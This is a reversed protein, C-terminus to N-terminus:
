RLIPLRQDVPQLPSAYSPVARETMTPSTGVMLTKGRAYRHELRPHEGYLRAHRSRLRGWRTRAASRGSACITTPPACRRLAAALSAPRLERQGRGRGPLGRVHAPDRRAQRRRRHVDLVQERAQGRDERDHQPRRLAQRLRHLPVAGGAQRGPPGGTWADFDVRPELTIVKEPCTAACPGCQVCLDEQFTLTPREPNDGLASVPCASVCALCLTCGESDVHVTGFPARPLMAVNSAPTPAAAHLEGITQRLWHADAEM